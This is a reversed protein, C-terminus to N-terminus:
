SIYSQWCALRFSYKSFKTEINVYMYQLKYLTCNIYKLKLHFTSISRKFEMSFEVERLNHPRVSNAAKNWSEVVFSRGILFVKEWFWNFPNDWCIYLMFWIIEGSKISKSYEREQRKHNEGTNLEVRMLHMPFIRLFNCSVATKRFFYANLKKLILIV